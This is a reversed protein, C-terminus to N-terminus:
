FVVDDEDSEEEQAARYNIGSKAIETLIADAAKEETLTKGLLDKAPIYGLLEALQALSGYTAIEYHEAKQAAIILGADRQFSLNDTEDIIDNAEDIIGAMAPCKSTDVPENISAFVAELRNVHEKTEERHTQFASKLQPTTAMDVMKGLAKILKKEAWLIDQLQEVFLERLKSHALIREPEIVTAM